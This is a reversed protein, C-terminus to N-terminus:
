GEHDRFARDDGAGANLELAASASVFLIRPRTPGLAGEFARNIERPIRRSDAHGPSSVQGVDRM